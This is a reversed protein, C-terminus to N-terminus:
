RRPGYVDLLQLRTAQLRDTIAELLRSLLAHGFVPDDAMAARLRAADLTVARVRTVATADFTWRYPPLLWSWGLVDGPGITQLIAPPGGPAQLGIAVDGEVILHLRDAVDGASLIPHGAEWSRDVPTCTLLRAVFDQDANRTFRHRRILEFDFM